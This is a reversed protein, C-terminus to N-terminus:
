MESEFGINWFGEPTSPPAFRYRHRSVGEHHECRLNQKDGNGDPLVADYFKKCQKCEVGKLNAREAKKRVSEVYKFSKKETRQALDANVDQTEDDSSDFSMDKPDPGPLHQIEEEKSKKKLDEKINELPTDLFDDHPDPGNRSKAPRTDRWHSVRRKTGSLINTKTDSDPQTTEKKNNQQNITRNTTEFTSMPINPPKRSAVPSNLISQDNNASEKDVKTMNEQTLGSKSCLYNYQSKLKKYAEIVERRKQKEIMIEGNKVEIQQLLKGHLEMEEISEESKVRIGNKLKDVEEELCKVKMVLTRKGKQLQNEMECDNLLKITKSHEFAQTRMNVIVTEQYKKKEDYKNELSQLRESLENMKDNKRKIEYEKEEILKLLDSNSKEKEELKLKLDNIEQELETKRKENGNVLNAKSDLLERLSKQLERKEAIEKTKRKLEEEIDKPVNKMKSNEMKLFENEENVKEEEIQLKKIQDMLDNEKKKWENEAAKKTESYVKKLESQFDPYLQKCFLYEIQSVSEKTEQITAALLTSLGSIYETDAGDVEYTHDPSTQVENEM